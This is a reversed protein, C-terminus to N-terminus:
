SKIQQKIASDTAKGYPPLVGGLKAV